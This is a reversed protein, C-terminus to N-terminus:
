QKAPPPPVRKWWPAGPQDYKAARPPRATPRAAKAKAPGKKAAIKKPAKKTAM